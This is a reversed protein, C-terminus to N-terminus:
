RRVEKPRTRTAPDLTSEHGPLVQRRDGGFERDHGISGLSVELSDSFEPRGMEAVVEFVQECGNVFGFARQSRSM